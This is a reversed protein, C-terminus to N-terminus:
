GLAPSNSAPMSADSPASGVTSAARASYMRGGVIRPMRAIEDLALRPLPLVLERHTKIREGPIRLM